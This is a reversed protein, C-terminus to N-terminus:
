RSVLDAILGPGTAEPDGMTAEPHGVRSLIRGARRRDAPRPLGLGQWMLQDEVVPEPEPTLINNLLMRIREHKGEKREAATM